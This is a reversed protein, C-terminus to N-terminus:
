AGGTVGFVLLGVGYGVTAPVGPGVCPDIVAIVCVGVTEVPVPSTEEVASEATCTALRAVRVGVVVGVFLGVVLGVAEGVTM